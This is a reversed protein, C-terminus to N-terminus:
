EEGAPEDAPPTDPAPEEDGGLIGLIGRGREVIDTGQRLIGDVNEIPDGEGDILAKGQDLLNKGQGLIGDEGTIQRLTEPELARRSFKLVQEGTEPLTELMRIGAALILRETLDEKPDDVTGSIRVETWLLGRDGPQFVKTEAGPIRALTGPTLGLQFRGDLRDDKMVVLKGEVRMLGESALVFDDLRLVGDEWLFRTGAESLTLRLFRQNDGYAGLAELVPLGTLVGQTLELTGDVVPGKPGNMIGFGSTVRGQLRQKWDEPVVEGADVDSLSGDFGYEGDGMGAEGTLTLAGREYLRFDAHTLFIRSDQYRLRAEGLRLPPVQKWPMTVVGGTGRAEYSGKVQGPKIVWGTGEFALAGDELQARVVSEGIRLDLLEAERPLFRDYWHGGGQKEVATPETSPLGTPAKKRPDIEVELRAIKADRVEVVRESVRGLGIDLSLGEAAVRSVLTDGQADFSPTAVQTGEWRFGGFKATVGLARGAEQELMVRFSESHLWGRLWGYAGFLGLVAAVLLGALWGVWRRKGAKGGRKAATM